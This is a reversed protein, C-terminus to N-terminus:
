PYNTFSSITHTKGTQHDFKYRDLLLLLLASRHHASIKAVNECLKRDQCRDAERQETKVRTHPLFVKKVNETCTISIYGVCDKYDARM